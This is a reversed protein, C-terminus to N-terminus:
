CSLCKLPSTVSRKKSRKVTESINYYLMFIVVFYFLTLKDQVFYQKIIGDMNITYFFDKKMEQGQSRIEENKVGEPSFSLFFRDVSQNKFPVAPGSSCRRVSQRDM